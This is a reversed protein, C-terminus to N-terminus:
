FTMNKCREADFDPNIQIQNWLIANKMVTTILMNFRIFLIIMHTANQSISIIEFHTEM